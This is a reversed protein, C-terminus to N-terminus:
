PIGAFDLSLRWGAAGDGMFRSTPKPMRSCGLNGTKARLRRSSPRLVGRRSLMRSNLEGSRGYALGVAARSIDRTLLHAFGPEHGPAMGHFSDAPLLSVLANLFDSRWCPFAHPRQIGQLRV